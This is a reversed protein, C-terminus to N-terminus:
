ICLIDESGNVIYLGVASREVQKELHHRFEIDLQRGLNLCLLDVTFLYEEYIAIEKDGGKVGLHVFRCHGLKGFHFRLIEHHAIGRGGVVVHEVVELLDEAM